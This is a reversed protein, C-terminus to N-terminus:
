GAEVVVYRVRVNHHARLNLMFEVEGEAEEHSIWWELRADAGDGVVYVQAWVYGAADYEGISVQTGSPGVEVLDDDGTDAESTEGAGQDKPTEIAWLKTPNGDCAVDNLAFDGPTIAIHVTKKSRDSTELVALFDTGTSLAVAPDLSANHRIRRDTQHSTFSGEVLARQLTMSQGEGVLRHLEVYFDRRKRGVGLASVMLDGEDLRAGTMSIIWLGNLSTSRTTQAVTTNVAEGASWFPYSIAVFWGQAPNAKPTNWYIGVSSENRVPFIGFGPMDLDIGAPAGVVRRSDLTEFPISGGVRVAERVQELPVMVIGRSVSTGRDGDVVWIADMEPHYCFTRQTVDVGTVTARGDPGSVALDFSPGEGSLAFSLEAADGLYNTSDLGDPIPFTSTRERLAFAERDLDFHKIEGRLKTRVTPSM